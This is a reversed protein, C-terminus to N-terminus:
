VLPPHSCLQTVMVQFETGMIHPPPAILSCLLQLCTGFLDYECVKFITNNNNNNKKKLGLSDLGYKWGTHEVQIVFPVSIFTSFVVSPM